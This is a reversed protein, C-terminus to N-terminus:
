GLALDLVRQVDKKKASGEHIKEEDVYFTPVYYYDYQEAVEPQKRENIMEIEINKYKDESQLEKLYGLALQCYPCSDFMFFKIKKM